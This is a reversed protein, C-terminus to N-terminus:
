SGVTDDAGHGPEARHEFVIRNDTWSLEFADAVSHEKRLNALHGAFAEPSSLRRVGKLRFGSLTMRQGAENTAVSVAMLAHWALHSTGLAVAGGVVATNPFVTDANATVSMSIVAGRKLYLVPLADHWATEIEDANILRTQDVGAVRGLEDVVGMLASLLQYQDIVGPAVHPEAALPARLMTVFEGDHEAEVEVFAEPRHLLWRLRTNAKWGDMTWGQGDWAWEIALDLRGEPSSTVTVSVCASRWQYRRYGQVDFPVMFVDAPVVFSGELGDDNVRILGRTAPAPDISLLVAGGPAHPLTLGFRTELIDGMQVPFDRKIGLLFDLMEFPDDNDVTFTGSIPHDPYGLSAREASKEDAYADMGDPCASEFATRVAAGAAVPLRDSPSLAFSVYMKGLRAAKEEVEAQRLRHLIRELYKGRVHMVYLAPFALDDVVPVVIFSPKIEKALREAMDLRLRVTRTTAKVTKVQVVCSRPGRRQDLTQGVSEHPFDVVFDWGARDREQSGNCILGADTCWEGFRKQGKDGLEDNNL